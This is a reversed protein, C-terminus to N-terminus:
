STVNLTGRFMGMSCSFVYSGPNEPTFNITTSRNSLDQSIGLKPVQLISRCGTGAGAIEWRVPIGAKVTYSTSPEYYPDTGTITMRIVQTGNEMTVNPDNAPANSGSAVAASEQFSLSPLSLPYGAITLGNQVNFLGLVIVLAGTFQFFLKGAKGKLSSSAWGLALLAPATGIAFGGLVFGSALFSGTTLAYVQLSQTFGCPLFFTAAGLLMPASWHEKGKVDVIRRGISKPMHPMLGKLWQPSIHLMELGVVIMYVAALLTLGGTVLPSFTLAKGLLGILGGLVAYSLIRGTVFLVVPKMKQSTSGDGYRERFRGASSLLLGGAVALCSSSGAALGLLLAAAFTVTSGTSTQAGLVGFKNFLSWVLLVIAFIGVLRILTPREVMEDSTESQNKKKEHLSRVSYKADAALSGKLADLDLSCGDHCVIKAIGNSANANVQKVWPLTGFKREVTIECSRCTMGDVYVQAVKESVVQAPQESARVAFGCTKLHDVLRAQLADDAVDMEARGQWTDVGSVGAISQAQKEFEDANNKQLNEVHLTIRM